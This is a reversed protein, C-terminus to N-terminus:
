SDAPLGVLDEEVRGAEPLAEAAVLLVGLDEERPGEGLLLDVWPHGVLGGVELCAKLALSGTQVVEKPSARPVPLGALLAAVRLFARLVVLLGALLGVM